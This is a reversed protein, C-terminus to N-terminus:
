NQDQHFWIDDVFFAADSDKDEPRPRGMALVLIEGSPSRVKVHRTTGVPADVAIEGNRVQELFEWAIELLRSVEPTVKERRHYLASARWRLSIRGQAM